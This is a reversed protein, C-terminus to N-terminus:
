SAKSDFDPSNLREEVDETFDLILNIPDEKPNRSNWIKEDIKLQTGDGVMQQRRNTLSMLMQPRTADEIDVWLTLQKGDKNTARLAHNARYDWGTGPDRRHEERAAQAFQAALLEKATKPQPAIVGRKIAWESVLEMDITKLGTEQKYLQILGQLQESRTAM